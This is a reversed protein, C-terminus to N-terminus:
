PGVEVCPQDRWPNAKSKKWAEREAILHDELLREAKLREIQRLFNAKATKVANDNQMYFPVSPNWVAVRKQGRTKVFIGEYEM